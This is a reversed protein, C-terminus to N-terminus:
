RLAGTNSQENPNLGLYPPVTSQTDISMGSSGQNQYTGFHYHQDYSYVTDPSPVTVCPLCISQSLCASPQGGPAQSGVAAQGFVTGATAFTLLVMVSLVAFMVKHQFMAQQFM